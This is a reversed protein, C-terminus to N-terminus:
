PAAIKQLSRPQLAELAALLAPILATLDDLRNTKAQLILVAMPLTSLNQQYEIGKDATVLVDFEAAALALLKGNKVGAWGRKQVSQAEHGTLLTGLRAPVSEDLLIRM